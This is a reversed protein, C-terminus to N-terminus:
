RPACRRTMATRCLCALVPEALQQRIAGEFSAEAAGIATAPIRGIYCAEDFGKKKDETYRAGLTFTWKDAFAWDIQGFGAYSEGELHGNIAGNRASRIRGAPLRHARPDGCRQAGQHAAPQGLDHRISVSGRDVAGRRRRQFVPQDREVVLAAIGRLLRRSRGHREDGHLGPSHVDVAHGSRRRRFRCNMTAPWAPYARRCRFTSSRRHAANRRQRLGHSVPVGPLRRLVEADRRRSGVHLRSPHPQPGRAHRGGHSQHRRHVPGRDGPEHRHLRVDLQLLSRRQVPLTTDYPSLNALLTNGVGYTDSWEFKSYRVRAVAHEGLDAELQAEVMWRDSTAGDEAPGNNKIFGEDRKESYAASWTACATPSRAACWHM